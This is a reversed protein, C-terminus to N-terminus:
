GSRYRLIEVGMSLSGESAFLSEEPSMTNNLYTRIWTVIWLQIRGHALTM